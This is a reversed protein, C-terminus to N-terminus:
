KFSEQVFSVETDIFKLWTKWADADGLPESDGDADADPLADRDCDADTDRLTEGDAEALADTDPLTTM